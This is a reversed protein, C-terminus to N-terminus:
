VVSKRDKAVLRERGGSGVSEGDLDLVWLRNLPDDGALSRLFVVRGGDPAVTFGRPQGLTFNRTRAQQRPFSAARASATGAALTEAM